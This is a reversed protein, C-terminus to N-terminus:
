TQKDGEEKEEEQQEQQEEQQQLKSVVYEDHYEKGFDERLKKFQDTLFWEFEEKLQIQFTRHDNPNSNQMEIRDVLKLFNFEEMTKLATKKSIAMHDEIDITDLKGNNELLHDFLIVREKSATSLVVKIM